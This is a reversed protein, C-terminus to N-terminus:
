DDKFINLCSFHIKDFNGGEPLLIYSGKEDRSSYLLGNESTDFVKRKTNTTDMNKVIAILEKIEWLEADTKLHNGLSSMISIMKVPNSIVGLSFAKEKIAVLIQQQRKARDFDSSSFRARAFLLATKGDIVQSGAPLEIIGEKFQNIESFPRALTINIGGLIDIVEKFAQFDVSVVYHIDLGTVNSLVKKDYKLGNKWGGDKVGNVYVENIKNKNDHYPINVYLDRPISILATKGTDVEMSLIMITDTLLGGNPDDIGRIGLLLINLRELKNNKLKDMTSTEEEIPLIQFFSNKFPLMKIFSKVVSNREGTIKNFASNTQYAIYGGFIFAFVFFIITIKKISITMKKRKQILKLDFNDNEEDTIRKIDFQRKPSIYVMFLFNFFLFMM